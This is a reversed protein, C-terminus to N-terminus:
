GEVSPLQTYQVEVNYVCLDANVTCPSYMATQFFSTTRNTETRQATIYMYAEIQVSALPM